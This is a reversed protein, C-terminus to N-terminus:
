LLKKSLQTSFPSAEGELVTKTTVAVDAPPFLVIVMPPNLGVASAVLEATTRSPPPTKDSSIKVGDLGLGFTTTGATLRMAVVLEVESTASGEEVDIEIKVGAGISSIVLEVLGEVREGVIEKFVVSGVGSPARIALEVAIVEAVLVDSLRENGVVEMPGDGLRADPPLLTISARLWAIDNKWDGIM